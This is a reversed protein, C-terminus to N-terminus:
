KTNTSVIRLLMMKPGPIMISAARTIITIHHEIARQSVGIQLGIFLHARPRKTIQFIGIMSIPSETLQLRGRNITSTRISILKMGSVIIIKTTSKKTSLRDTAILQIHDAQTFKTLHLLNAVTTSKTLAM